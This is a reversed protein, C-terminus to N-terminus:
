APTVRVWQLEIFEDDPYRATLTLTDDAFLYDRVLDTGIWDPFVSAQVHHVVERGRVEWTGSYAAARLAASAVRAVAPLRGLLYVARRVGQRRGLEEVPVGLPARDADMLIAHMYGEDTYTIFGLPQQGYSEVVRGDRYHSRMRLLKWTGYFASEASINM